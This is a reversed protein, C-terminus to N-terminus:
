KNALLVSESGHHKCTYRIHSQGKVCPTFVLCKSWRFTRTELLVHSAYINMKLRIAKPPLQNCISSIMNTIWVPPHELVGWKGHTHTITDIVWVNSWHVTTLIAHEEIPPGDRVTILRSMVYICVYFWISICSVSKKEKDEFEDKRAQISHTLTCHM